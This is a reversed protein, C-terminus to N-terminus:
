FWSIILRCELILLLHTLLVRLRVTWHVKKRQECHPGTENGVEGFFNEIYQSVYINQFLTLGMTLGKAKGVWSSSEVWSNNAKEQHICSVSDAANSLLKMACKPTM